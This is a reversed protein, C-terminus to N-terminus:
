VYARLFLLLPCVGILIALGVCIAKSLPPLQLILMLSM